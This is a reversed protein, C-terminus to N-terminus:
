SLYKMMHLYSRHNPKFKIHPKNSIVTLYNKGYGYCTTKKVSNYRRKHIFNILCANACKTSENKTFHKLRNNQKNGQKNKMCRKDISKANSKANSQKNLNLEAMIRSLKTLTVDDWSNDQKYNIHTHIKNPNYQHNHYENEHYHYENEQYHNINDNITDIDTDYNTFNKKDVDYHEIQDTDLELGNDLDLYNKHSNVVFSSNENATNSQEYTYDNSLFTWNYRIENRHDQNQLEIRIMIHLILIYM